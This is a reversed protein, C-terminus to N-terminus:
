INFAAGNESSNKGTSKDFRIKVNDIINVILKNNQIHADAM